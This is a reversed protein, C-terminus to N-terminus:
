RHHSAAASAGVDECALRPYANPSRTQSSVRQVWSSASSTAADPGFEKGTTPWSQIVLWGPPGYRAACEDARGRALHAQRTEERAGQPMESPYRRLADWTSLTHSEEGQNNTTKRRRHKSEATTYRRQGQVEGGKEKM